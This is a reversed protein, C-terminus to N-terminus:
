GRAKRIIAILIALLIAGGGGGLIVPNALVFDLIAGFDFPKDGDGCLDCVKDGNADVHAGAVTTFTYTDSMKGCASCIYWYTDHEQCNTARSVFTAENETDRVSWNHGISLVKVSDRNIIEVYKGDAGKETQFIKQCDKCTLYAINGDADCTAPKAEVLTVDEHQCTEIYIRIERGIYTSGYQFEGSVGAATAIDVINQKYWEQFSRLDSDIFLSVSLNNEKLLKGISEATYNQIRLNEKTFYNEKTATCVPLDFVECTLIENNANQGIIWQDHDERMIASTQNFYAHLLINPQDNWTLDVLYYEGDIRVANWAHPEGIGTTPNIGYGFIEVSQIGVRHLLCQLSEAYGECVARGEVLAGYANHANPATERNSDYVIQSALMDHLAKEKEYESMEPSLRALMLNIAQEFAAKADQLEAGKMTYTPELSWFVSGDHNPTYSGGMWFQETHDRRTAELVMEFEAPSIKYQNNSVTIEEACADIGAVISDYAFLLADSNELTKLAERCYYFEKPAAGKDVTEAMPVIPLMQMLLVLCCLAILLRKKM